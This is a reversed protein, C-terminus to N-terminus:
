RKFTKYDSAHMGMQMLLYLQDVKRVPFYFSLFCAVLNAFRTRNGM